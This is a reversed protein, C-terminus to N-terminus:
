DICLIGEPWKKKLFLFQTHTVFIFDLFGLYILFAHFCPFLLYNSWQISGLKFFICMIQLGQFVCNDCSLMESCFTSCYAVTILLWAIQFVETVFIFHSPFCSNVCKELFFPQLKTITVCLSTHSECKGLILVYKWGCTNLLMWLFQM